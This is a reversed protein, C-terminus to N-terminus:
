RGLAANVRDCQSDTFDNEMYRILGSEYIGNAEEAKTLIHKEYLSVVEECIDAITAKKVCWVKDIDNFRYGLGKLSDKIDYSNGLELWYGKGVLNGNKNSDIHMRVNLKVMKEKKTEKETEAIREKVYAWAMKMAESIYQSARGGFKNAASRAMNWAVRMVRAKM